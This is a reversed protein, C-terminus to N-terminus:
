FCLGLCWLGLHPFGLFDFDQLYLISFIYIQLFYNLFM